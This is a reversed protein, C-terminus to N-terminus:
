EGGPDDHRAPHHPDPLDGVLHEIPYPALQFDAELIRAYRGSKSNVTGGLRM